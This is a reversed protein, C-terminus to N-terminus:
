KPLDGEYVQALYGVDNNAPLVEMNTVILDEPGSLRTYKYEIKLLEGTTLLHYSRPAGSSDIRMDASPDIAYVDDFDSEYEILSDFDEISRTEPLYGAYCIGLEDNRTNWFVYYHGGERVKYVTYYHTTTTGDGYQLAVSRACRIPFCMNIHSPYFSSAPTTDSIYKDYSPSYKGFYGQLEKLGYEELDHDGLPTSNDVVLEGDIVKTKSIFDLIMDKTVLDNEKSLLESMGYIELTDFAEDDFCCEKDDIQGNYTNYYISKEASILEYSGDKYTIRYTVGNFHDEPIESPKKRESGYLDNLFQSWVDSGITAIVIPKDIGISSFHSMLLMDISEIANEPRSLEYSGATSGSIAVKVDPVINEVIDVDIDTVVAEGSILEEVSPCGTLVLMSAGILLILATIKIYKRLKM